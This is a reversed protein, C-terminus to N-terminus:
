DAAPATSEVVEAEEARGNARLAEALEQRFYTREWLSLRSEEATALAQRLSEIGKETQGARLQVVGLFGRSDPAEPSIRAADEALRLARHMGEPSRSDHWALYTMAM